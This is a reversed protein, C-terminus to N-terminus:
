ATLRGEASQEKRNDAYEFVFIRIECSTGAAAAILLRPLVFLRCTSGGDEADVM